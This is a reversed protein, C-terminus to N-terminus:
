RGDKIRCFITADNCNNQKIAQDISVRAVCYSRLGEIDSPNLTEDLQRYAHIICSCNRFHHLKQNDPNIFSGFCYSSDDLLRKKESKHETEEAGIRILTQAQQNCLVMLEENAFHQELENMQRSKTTIGASRSLSFGNTFCPKRSHCCRHSCNRYTLTKEMVSFHVTTTNCPASLSVM